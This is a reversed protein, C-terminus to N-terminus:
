KKTIQKVDIETKTFEKDVRGRIEITDQPGINQGNWAHKSVDIEVEGTADKFLFEDNDIQKVISGQLIVFTDDNANLAAAVTKVAQTEDFYGGNPKSKGAHKGDQFGGNAFAATSAAFLTTLILAKKMFKSESDHQSTPHLSATPKRQQTNFRPFRFLIKLFRCKKSKLVFLAFLNHIAKHM